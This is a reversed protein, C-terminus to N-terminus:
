RSLHRRMGFRARRGNARMSCRSRFGRSYPLGHSQPLSGGRRSLAIIVPLALAFFSLSTCDIIKLAGYRYERTVLAIMAALGVCVAATPHGAIILVGYLGWAIFGANSLVGPAPKDTEPM